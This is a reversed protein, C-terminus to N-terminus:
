LLVSWVTTNKRFAWNEKLAGKVVALLHHVTDIDGLLIHAGSNDIGWNAQHIAVFLHM